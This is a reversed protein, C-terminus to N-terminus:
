KVSFNKTNSFICGLWVGMPIALPHVFAAEAVSSIMLYALIILGSMYYYINIKRIGQVRLFLRYLAASYLILGIVGFQGIVMPWFSDSIFWAKGQQLGFISSIGYMSYVLSYYKGSTYSGFTGFGTGIPFYDKAISFSTSLLNYRASEKQISSFFYFYISDWAVAILLPFFLLVTRLKFKKKRIIVFYYIMVVSIAAGIAKSRLTTCMLILLVIGYITGKKIYQEVTVLIAILLCCMAAYTTPHSYFLHVSRLGYRIDGVFPTYNLEAMFTMIAFIFTLIRVNNYIFIANDKISFSKFLKYGVYIALWFKVCLFADLLAAYLVQLGFVINGVFGTCVLLFIFVTSNGKKIRLGSRKIDGIFYLVSLLAILEDFYGFAPLFTQILDSFVFLYLLTVFTWRKIQRRQRERARVGSYITYDVNM